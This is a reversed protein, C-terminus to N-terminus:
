LDCGSRVITKSEQKTGEQDLGACNGEGRPFDEGEQEPCEPLEVQEARERRHHARTVREGAQDGHPAAPM